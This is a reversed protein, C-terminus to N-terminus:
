SFLSVDGCQACFFHGAHWEAGCAVVVDGEIPTKCSKCRPSFFEHFDLHCYFRMGEDGDQEAGEIDEGNMRRQIREVREARVAEPEPYFAVCELAESCHYCRFCEPHFRAGAATVIRGAIPFACTHCLVTASGRGLLRNAVHSPPPAPRSKSGPSPLPRRRSSDSTGPSVNITPAGNISITPPTPASSISISPPRVSITPINANRPSDTPPDDPFNITPIPPMPSTSQRKPPSDDPFNIIPIPPRPQSDSSVNIIPIPPNGRPTVSESSSSVNIIPLTSSRAVPRIPEDDPFCITPIVPKSQQLSEGRSNPVPAKPLPSPQTTDRKLSSTTSSEQTSASYSQTIAPLSSRSRDNKLVSRYPKAPEQQGLAVTSQCEEMKTEKPKWDRDFSVIPRGPSDSVMSPTPLKPSRDKLSMSTAKRIDDSRIEKGDKLRVSDKENSGDSLDVSSQSDQNTTYLPNRSQSPANRQIEVKHIRNSETPPCSSPRSLSGLSARSIRARAFPNRFHVSNLVGSPKQASKEDIQVESKSKPEAPPSIDRTPHEVPVAFQVSTKRRGTEQSEEISNLSKVSGDSVVRSGSGSSGASSGSVSRSGSRLKRMVFGERAEKSLNRAHSGKKLHSTFSEKKTAANEAGANISAASWDPNRFAATEGNQHKWVLESAEARAAEFLKKEEEEKKLDMEELAIRLSRAEQREMWRAGATEQYELDEDEKVAEPERVIPRGLLSRHSTASLKRQINSSSLHPSARGDSEDMLDPTTSRLSRSENSLNSSSMEINSVSHRVSRFSSPPPRAGIPRNPRNTRLDQLYNAPSKEDSRTRIHCASLYMSMQESSM